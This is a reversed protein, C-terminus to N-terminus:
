GDGAGRAWLADAIHHARRISRIIVPTGFATISFAAGRAKRADLVENITNLMLPILRITLSITLVITDVPVGLRATPRLVRELADMMEEITTTLTLLVALMVSGFLVIMIAAAREWGLQWWQFVGLFLLLPIPPWLQEWMIRPPIRAITYLVFAIALFIMAPYLTKVWISTGIIVLILTCFKVMPPTRHILSAGPVYTGLPISRIM